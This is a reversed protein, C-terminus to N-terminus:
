RGPEACLAPLAM